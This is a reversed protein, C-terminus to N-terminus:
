RGDCAMECPDPPSPPKTEVTMLRRFASSHNPRTTISDSNQGELVLRPSVEADLKGELGDLLIREAGESVIKRIWQGEEQLTQRFIQFIKEEM